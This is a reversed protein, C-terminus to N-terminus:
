QEIEMVSDLSKSGRINEEYQICVTGAMRKFNMSYFNIPVTFTSSKRFM